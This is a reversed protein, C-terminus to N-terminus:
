SALTESCRVTEMNVTDCCLDNCLVEKYNINRGTNNRQFFLMAKISIVWEFYFIMSINYYIDPSQLKMYHSWKEGYPKNKMYGAIMIPNMETTNKMIYETVSIVTIM